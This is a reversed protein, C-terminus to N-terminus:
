LASASRNNCPAFAKALPWRRGSAPGAPKGKFTRGHRFQYVRLTSTTTPSLGHFNSDEQGCWESAQHEPDAPISLGRGALAPAIASSRVSRAPTHNSRRDSAPARSPGPHRSSLFSGHGGYVPILWGGHNIQIALRGQDARDALARLMERDELCLGLRLRTHQQGLRNMPFTAPRAGPQQLRIFDGLQRFFQACFASLNPKRDEAPIEGTRCCVMHSLHDAENLVSLRLM